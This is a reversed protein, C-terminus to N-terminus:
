LIDNIKDPLFHLITCILTYTLTLASKSWRIKRRIKIIGLATLLGIDVTVVIRGKEYCIKM